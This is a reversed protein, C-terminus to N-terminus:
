RVSLSIPICIVITSAAAARSTLVLVILRRNVLPNSVPSFFAAPFHSTSTSLGGLVDSVSFKFFLLLRGFGSSIAARSDLIM